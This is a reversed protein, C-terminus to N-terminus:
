NNDSECVENETYVELEYEDLNSYYGYEYIHEAIYKKVYLEADQLTKSMVYFNKCGHENYIFAYLKM